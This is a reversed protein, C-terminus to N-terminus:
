SKSCLVAIITASGLMFGILLTIVHHGIKAVPKTPTSVKHVYAEMANPVLGLRKAEECTAYEINRGTNVIACVKHFRKAPDSDLAAVYDWMGPLDPLVAGGFLAPVGDIEFTTMPRRSKTVLEVGSVKARSMGNVGFNPDNNVLIVADEQYM